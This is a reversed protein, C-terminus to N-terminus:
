EPEGLAYRDPSALWAQRESWSLWEPPLPKNDAPTTGNIYYGGMAGGVGGSGKNGEYRPAAFYAAPARRFTRRVETVTGDTQTMRHTVILTGDPQVTRSVVTDETVAQALAPGAVGLAGSLLAAVVLTKKLM